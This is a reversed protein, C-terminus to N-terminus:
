QGFHGRPDHKAGYVFLAILIHKFHSYLTTNSVSQRCYFLREHLFSPSFFLFLFVDPCWYLRLTLPHQATLRSYRMIWSTFWASLHLPVELTLSTQSFIGSFNCLYVGCFFFYTSSMCSPLVFCGFRPCRFYHHGVVTRQVPVAFKPVLWVSVHFFSFLM